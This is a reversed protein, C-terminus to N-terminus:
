IIQQVFFVIYLVNCSVSSRKRKDIVPIVIYLHSITHVFVTLQHSFVTPLDGGRWNDGRSVLEEDFKHRVVLSMSCTEGDSILDELCTLPRINQKHHDRASKNINSYVLIGFIYVTIIQQYKIHDRVTTSSSVKHFM